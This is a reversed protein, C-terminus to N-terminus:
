VVPVFIDYGGAPGNKNPLSADIFAIFVDKNGDEIAAAVSDYKNDVLWSAVKEKIDNIYIENFKYEVDNGKDGYIKDANDGGSITDDGNGANITDNGSDAIISDNGNTGNVKIPM